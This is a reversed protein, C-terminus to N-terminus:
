NLRLKFAERAQHTYFIPGNNGLRYYQLGRDRYNKATRKSIRWNRMLTANDWDFEGEELRREVTELRKRLHENEKVLQGVLFGLDQNMAM